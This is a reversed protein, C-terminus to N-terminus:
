RGKTPEEGAVAFATQCELGLVYLIDEGYDPVYGVNDEEDLLMARQLVAGIGHDVENERCGEDNRTGNDRCVADLSVLVCPNIRIPHLNSRSNM